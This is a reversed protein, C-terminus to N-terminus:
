IGNLVYVLLGDISEISLYEHVVLETISDDFQKKKINYTKCLLKFDLEEDQDFIQLFAYLGKASLSLLPNTLLDQPIKSFKFESKKM